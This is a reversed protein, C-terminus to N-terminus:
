KKLSHLYLALSSLSTLNGPHEKSNKELLRLRFKFGRIYNENVSGKLNISVDRYGLVRKRKIPKEETKKIESEKSINKM